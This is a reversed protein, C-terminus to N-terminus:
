ALRRMSNLDVAIGENSAGYNRGEQGDVFVRNRGGLAVPRREVRLEFEIDLLCVCCVIRVRAYLVSQNRRISCECRRRMEPMDGIGV